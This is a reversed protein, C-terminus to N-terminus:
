PQPSTGSRKGVGLRALQDVVALVDQETTVPLGKREEIRDPRDVVHSELGLQADRHDIAGAAACPQRAGRERRRPMEDGTEELPVRQAPRIAHSGQSHRRRELQTKSVRAAMAGQDCGRRTLRDLAPEHPVTLRLRKTLHEPLRERQRREILRRVAGSRRAERPHEGLHKAGIRAGSRDRERGPRQMQHVGFRCAREDFAVATLDSGPGDCRDPHRRLAHVGDFGGARAPRGPRDDRGDWPKRTRVEEVRM